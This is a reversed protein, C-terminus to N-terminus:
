RKRWAAVALLALLLSAPEPSSAQLGDIVVYDGVFVLRDFPQDTHWAHWELKGDFEPSRDYGFAVSDVLTHDDYFYVDIGSPTSFETTAGWYAGFQDVPEDFLITTAADPGVNIGLAREGESVQAYGSSTLYFEAIGPEYVVMRPQVITATGGLIPTPNPLYIPTYDVYNPFSEWSESTEGIFPALEITASAQAACLLAASIFFRRSMSRM